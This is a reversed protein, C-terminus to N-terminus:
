KKGKERKQEADVEQQAQRRLRIREKYAELQAKRRTYDEREQQTVEHDKIEWTVFQKSFFDYKDMKLLEEDSLLEKKSKCYYWNYIDGDKELNTLANELPDIIRRAIAGTGKINEYKPIDPISTLLAEISIINHTGKERNSKKHYHKNLKLLVAREIAKDQGYTLAKTPYQTVGYEAIVQTGTETFEVHIKGANYTMKEFLVFGAWRRKTKRDANPFDKSTITTHLLTKLDEIVTQEADVYNGRTVEAPTKKKTHQIYELIDFDFMLRGSPTENPKILSTAKLMTYDMLNQVSVRYGSLKDKLFDVLNFRYYKHEIVANGKEDNDTIMLTNSIEELASTESGQLMYEYAKLPPYTKKEKRPRGRKSYLPRFLTGDLLPCADTIYSILSPLSFWELVTAFQSPIAPMSLYEMDSMQLGEFLTPTDETTQNAKTAILKQVVYTKQTYALLAYKSPKDTEASIVIPLSDPVLIEGSAFGKFFPVGNADKLTIDLLLCSLEEACTESHFTFPLRVLVNMEELVKLSAELYKRRAGAEGEKLLEKVFNDKKAINSTAVTNLTRFLERTATATTGVTEAFALMAQWLEPESMTESMEIYNHLTHEQGDYQVKIGEPDYGKKVEM